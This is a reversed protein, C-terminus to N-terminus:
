PGKSSLQSLTFNIQKLEQTINTLEKRIDDIINDEQPEDLYQAIKEADTPDIGIKEGIDVITLQM